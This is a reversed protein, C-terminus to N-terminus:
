LPFGSFGLCGIIPLTQGARETLTQGPRSGSGVEPRLWADRSGNAHSALHQLSLGLLPSSYLLATGAEAPKRFFLFQIPGRPVTFHSFFGRCLICALCPRCLICGVPREEYVCVGLVAMVVTVTVATLCAPDGDGAPGPHVLRQGRPGARYLFRKDGSLGTNSRPTKNQNDTQPLLKRRTM